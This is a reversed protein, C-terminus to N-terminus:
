RNRAQVPPRHVERDVARGIGTDLAKRMLDRIMPDPKEEGDIM